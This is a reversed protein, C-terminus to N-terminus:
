NILLMKLPTKQQVKWTCPIHYRIKSSRQKGLCYRCHHDRYQPNYGRNPANYFNKPASSKAELELKVMKKIMKRIEDMKDSDKEQNSSSVEEKGRRRTDQGVKGKLKGTSAFNAELELADSQADDLTAPKRERLSFGFDSEFTAIFVVKAANLHPKM